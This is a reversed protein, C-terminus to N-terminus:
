EGKLIPEGEEDDSYTLFQDEQSDTVEEAQGELEGELYLPPQIHDQQEKREHQLLQLPPKQYQTNFGCNPIMKKSHPPSNKAELELKVLKNSLNKIMNNMEEM